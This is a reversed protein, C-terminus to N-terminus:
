ESVGAQSHRDHSPVEHHAGGHIETRIGQADITRPGELRLARLLRTAGRDLAADLCEESHCLYAGRGPLTAAPDVHVIGDDTTLRILSFKEARRRCALCSRM